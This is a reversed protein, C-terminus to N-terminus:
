ISQITPGLWCCQKELMLEYTSRKFFSIYVLIELWGGNLFISALNVITSKVDKDSRIIHSINSNNEISSFHKSELLKRLLATNHIPCTM